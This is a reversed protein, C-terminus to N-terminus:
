AADKRTAFIAVANRVLLFPVRVVGLSTLGPYSVEVDYLSTYLEHSVDIYKALDAQGALRLNGDLRFPGILLTVPVMKRNPENPDFDPPDKAPPILHFGIIQTTPLHLEKFFAARAPNGSAILLSRANLLHIHDPVMSTRLWTSVRIIEKVIVDGWVLSTQTYAMVPASKEDPGLNYPTLSPNELM